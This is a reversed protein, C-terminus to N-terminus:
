FKRFTPSGFTAPCVPGPVASIQQQTKPEDSLPQVLPTDAAIENEVIHQESEENEKQIDQATRRKFTSM